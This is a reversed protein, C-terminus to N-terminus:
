TVIEALGEPKALLEALKATEEPFGGGRCADCIPIMDSYGADIDRYMYWLSQALSKREFAPADNVEQQIAFRGYVIQAHIMTAAYSWPIFQVSLSHRASSGINMRIGDADYWASYQVGNYVIGYGGHYIAPLREAVYDDTYGKAFLNLLIMRSATTNSGFRLFGDIVPKPIVVSHMTEIEQQLTDINMTIM